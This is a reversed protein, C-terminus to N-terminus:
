VGDAPKALNRGPMRGLVRYSLWYMVLLTLLKTAEPIHRMKSRGSRRPAYEIPVDVIRHGSSAILAAIEVAHDFGNRELRDLPLATRWLAKIGTYIDTTRQGFLLNYLRSAVQNGVNRVLSMGLPRTGHFRSGYVVPERRAAALLAPISEPPYELDADIIIVVDATSAAIGDRLSAGYGLNTAHRILRVDPFQEIRAVTADSSANDVFLLGLPLGLRKVREHFEDISAEENYVPVILDVRPPDPLVLRRESM